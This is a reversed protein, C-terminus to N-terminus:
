AKVSERSLLCIGASIVLLGVVNAVTISENFLIYSLFLIVFNVLSIFPYAFSLDYHRLSMQWVFAQIMLCIISVIYFINTVISLVSHNDLSASAYKSCVGSLAQFIIALIIYIFSYDRKFYVM